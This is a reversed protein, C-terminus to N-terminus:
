TILLAAVVNRDEAALVNFTRCAAATDMIEIGIRAQYLSSLLDPKVIQWSAGTGLLITQPKLHLLEQVHIKSLETLKQPQWPHILQTPTVIISQTFLTENILIKGPEYSRITYKSNSSDLTIDM